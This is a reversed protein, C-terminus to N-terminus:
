EHGSEKPAAPLAAFYQAVAKLDDADLREAIHGMLGQPGAPRQGARWAKLQDELYGAPQGALPPFDEGIGRGDPGHCQVCAPLEQDWRGHVALERGPGDPPEASASDAPAMKLSSFYAAVAQRQTESLGSAVPKMTANAREGSAFADLQRRIYAEGLGALHPFAAAGQGQQGHCAVCSGAAPPPTQQAFACSLLLCLGLTVSLRAM